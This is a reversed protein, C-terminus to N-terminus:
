PAEQPALGSDPVFEGDVLVPREDIQLSAGTLTLDIHSRARVVSGSGFIGPSYNSGFALIMGGYAAHLNTDPFRHHRARHDLGVNFHSFRYSNPDRWSAFWESLIKAEQHAVGIRTLRGHEIELEIPEDVVRQRPGGVADYAGVYQVVGNVGAEDLAVAVWGGFLDGFQGAETVPIGQMLVPFEVRNGRQLILDTGLRSTLHFTTAEDVLKHARHIRHGLEPDPPILRVREISEKGGGVYAVRVRQEPGTLRGHTDTYAWVATTLDFVIDAHLMAEVARPPFDVMYGQRAACRYVLADCGLDAAAAHFAAEWARVTGDDSFIIVTEERHVECLDVLKRAIPVLDAVWSNEM